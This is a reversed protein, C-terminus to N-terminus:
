SNSFDRHFFYFIPNFLCNLHTKSTTDKRIIM